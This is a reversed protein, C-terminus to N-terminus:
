ISSYCNASLLERQSPIVKQYFYDEARHMVYLYPGVVLREKAEWFDPERAVKM